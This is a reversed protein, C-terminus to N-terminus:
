SQTKNLDVAFIYVNLKGKTKRKLNAKQQSLKEKSSDILVFNRYGLELCYRTYFPGLGYTSGTVVVFDDEGAGYKTALAASLNKTQNSLFRFTNLFPKVLYRRGLTWTAYVALGGVVINRVLIINDTLENLKKSAENSAEITQNIQTLSKM